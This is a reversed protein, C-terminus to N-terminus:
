MIGFNVLINESFKYFVGMIIGHIQLQIFGGLYTAVEVVCKVDM